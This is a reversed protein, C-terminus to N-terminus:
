IPTFQGQAQQLGNNLSQNLDILLASLGRQDYGALGALRSEVTIEHERSVREHLAVGQETLFLRQVRGDHEHSQREVYGDNELGNLLRTINSKDCFMLTSLRSPSIGPSLAIHHMAYYRPVTLRYREFVQRDGFDLLLFSEKILSYLLYAEEM